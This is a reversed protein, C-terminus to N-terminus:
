NANTNESESMVDSSSRPFINPELCNKTFFFVICDEENSKFIIIATSCPGTNQM